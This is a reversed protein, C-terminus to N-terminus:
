TFSKLIDTKKRTNTYPCAWGCSLQSIKPWRQFFNISIHLDLCATHVIVLIKNMQLILIMKLMKKLFNLIAYFRGTEQRFPVSPLSDCSGDNATVTFAYEEGCHLGPVLCSTSASNCSHTHGDAATATVSYSWANPSPDWSISATNSACDVWGGVGSPACPVTPPCLLQDSHRM